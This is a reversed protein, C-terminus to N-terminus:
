ILTYGEILISSQATESLHRRGAAGRSRGTPPSNFPRLRALCLFAPPSATKFDILRGEMDPVDVRGRVSVGSIEGQVDLEVAAPEVARALLACRFSVLMQNEHHRAPRLLRFVGSTPFREIM